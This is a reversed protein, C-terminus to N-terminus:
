RVQRLISKIIEKAAWREAFNALYPERREAKSRASDANYVFISLVNISVGDCCAKILETPQQSYPTEFNM